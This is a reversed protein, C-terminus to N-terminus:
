QMDTRPPALPPQRWSPLGHGFPPSFQQERVQTSRPLPAGTHAGAVPQRTVPLKQRAVEFQQPPAGLGLPVTVQSELVLRQLRPMEQSGGPMMQPFALVSEMLAGTSQQVPMVGGTSVIFRHLSSEDPIGRQKPPM